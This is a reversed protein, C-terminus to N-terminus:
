KPGQPKPVPKECATQAAQFAPSSPDTGAPLAQGTSGPDPFNPYGHARLCRAVELGFALKAQRVGPPASSGLSALLHGCAHQAVLTTEKSVGLAQESLAAYTGHGDPDPFNPVGHARM